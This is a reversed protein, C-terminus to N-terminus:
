ARNCGSARICFSQGFVVVKARISGSRVTYFLKEGLVVVKARISQSKGLCLLKQGLVVM